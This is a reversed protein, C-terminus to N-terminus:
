LCGHLVHEPDDRAPRSIETNATSVAPAGPRRWRLYPTLDVAPSTTGARWSMSSRRRFRGGTDRPRHEDGDGSAPLNVMSLAAASDDRGDRRDDTVTVTSVNRRGDGSATIRDLTIKGPANAGVEPTFSATLKGSDAGPVSVGVTIVDGDRDVLRGALPIELPDDPDTIVQPGIPDRWFPASAAPKTLTVTQSAVRQVGTKLDTATITYRGVASAANGIVSVDKSQFKWSRGTVRIDVVATSTDDWTVAISFPNPGRFYDGGGFEESEFPAPDDTGHAQLSVAPPDAYKVLRTEEVPTDEDGIRVVEVDWEVQRAGGSPDEVDVTIKANGVANGTVGVRNGRVFPHAIAGSSSRPDLTFSDDDTDAVIGSFDAYETEGQTIVMRPVPQTLTPPTNAAKAKVTATTSKEDLVTGDGGRLTATVAASGARRGRVNHIRGTKPPFSINDSPSSMEVFLGSDAVLHWLRNERIPHLAGVEVEFDDLNGISNFITAAAASEPIYEVWEATWPGYISGHKRSYGPENPLRARVYRPRELELGAEWAGVINPEVLIAPRPADASDVTALEESDEDGYKVGGIRLLRDGVQLYDGLKPNRAFKGDTADKPRGSAVPSLLVWLGDAQSLLAKVKVEGGTNDTGGDVGEFFPAEKRVPLHTYADPSTLLDLMQEIRQALGADRTLPLTAMGKWRLPERDIIHERGSVVSQSITRGHWDAKIGSEEIISKGAANSPWPVFRAM